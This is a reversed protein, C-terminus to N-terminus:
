AARDTPPDVPPEAPRQRLARVDARLNEDAVVDEQHQRRADVHQQAKWARNIALAVIASLIVGVDGGGLAEAGIGFLLLCSLIRVLGAMM